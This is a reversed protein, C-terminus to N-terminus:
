GDELSRFEELTLPIFRRVKEDVSLDSLGSEQKEKETLPIGLLRKESSTVTNPDFQGAHGPVLRDGYFIGLRLGYTSFSTQMYSMVRADAMDSATLVKLDSLLDDWVDQLYARRDRFTKLGPLNRRLKDAYKQLNRAALADLLIEEIPYLGELEATPSLVPRRAEIEESNKDATDARYTGSPDPDSNGEQSRANTALTGFVLIALLWLCAAPPFVRTEIGPDYRDFKWVM